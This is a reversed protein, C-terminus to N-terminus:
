ISMGKHYVLWEGLGIAAFVTLGTALNASVLWAIGGGILSVIIMMTKTPAQNSKRAVRSSSTSRSRSAKAKARKKM